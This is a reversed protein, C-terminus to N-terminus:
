GRGIREEEEQSFSATEVQRMPAEATWASAPSLVKWPYITGCGHRPMWWNWCGYMNKGGRTLYGTGAPPSRQRSEQEQQLRPYLHEADHVASLPGLSGGGDGRGCRQCDANSHRLSHVNLKEPLGKKKLILKFRWTFTSPTMPAQSDHERFVFDDSTM